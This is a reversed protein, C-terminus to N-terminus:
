RKPSAPPASRANSKTAVVPKLEDQTLVADSRYIQSLADNSMKKPGLDNVWSVFFSWRVGYRRMREVDPVGGIETLALLKRGGHQKKLEEWVSSLPDRVDAPYQDIGVIDVYRDGPYWEPKTGSSYVWILNHLQHHNTLRDYMLKWLQKFPEPGKAGWWFWGGEAEHLPRWLVPIDAAAFKKLEVAITDIDSLLLKYNKSQPDALAKQLDFTSADTYFGRWWLANITQGRENVHRENNILDAPANWHWLMTVIQGNRANGIINETYNAPKSSNSVRTPSYEILDGGMVAPTKGTTTRIYDTDRQQYQGSLTKEGYLDVLYSMLARTKATAKADILTKPPKKLAEVTAPVFDISDIDYYGWGKEIAVTNPGDQLEVKGAIHSAFVDGTQAFMGSSKLGNIVLDYGKEGSPSSYRITAEYVGAKAQPISWVIKDSADQLRTVYGTGSHGARTTAVTAGTLTANEAELHIKGASATRPAVQTAQATRPAAQASQASPSTSALPSGCAVLVPAVAFLSASILSLKQSPRNHM